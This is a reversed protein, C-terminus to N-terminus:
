VILGFSRANSRYYGSPDKARYQGYREQRIDTLFRNRKLGPTKLRCSTHSQNCNAPLKGVM